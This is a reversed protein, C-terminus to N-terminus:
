TGEGMRRLEEDRKQTVAWAAERLRTASAERVAVEREHPGGQRVPERYVLVAPVDDPIVLLEGDALEYVAAKSSM